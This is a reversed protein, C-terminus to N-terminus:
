SSLHKYPQSRMEADFIRALHRSPHARSSEQSFCLIGTRFQAFHTGHRNHAVSVQRKSTQMLRDKNQKGNKKRGRARASARM